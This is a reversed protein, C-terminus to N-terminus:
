SPPASYNHCVSQSVLRFCRSEPGKGNASGKDLCHQLTTQSTPPLDSSCESLHFSLTESSPLKNIPSSPAALVLYIFAWCPPAGRGARQFHSRPLCFRILFVECKIECLITVQQTSPMSSLLQESVSESCFAEGGGGLVKLSQSMTTYVLCKIILGSSALLPLKCIRLFPRYLCLTLTKKKKKSFQHLTSKFHCIWLCFNSFSFNFHM